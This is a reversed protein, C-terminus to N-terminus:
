QAGAHDLIKQLLEPSPSPHKVVRGNVYMQPAGLVQCAVGLQIDDQVAQRVEDRAFEAALKDRDLKLSSAAALGQEATGSEEKDCFWDHMRWLAEPGGLRGAAEVLKAPEFAERSYPFHYVELRVDKRNAVWDRAHKALQASARRHGDIFLVVRVPADEPGFKWRCQGSPIEVVEQQRWGQFLRDAMQPPRDFDATRLPLGEQNLTALMDDLAHLSNLGRVPVGNILMAPTGRVEIQEGEGADREVNRRVEPSKMTTLFKEADDFGLSPLAASLEEDTFQGGHAFLWRHM